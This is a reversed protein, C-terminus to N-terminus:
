GRRNRVFLFIARLQIVHIMLHDNHLHRLQLKRGFQIDIRKVKGNCHMIEIKTNIFWFIGGNVKYRDVKTPVTVGEVDVAVVQEDLNKLTSEIEARRNHYM